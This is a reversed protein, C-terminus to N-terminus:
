RGTKRSFLGRERLVSFLFIVNGFLYRKWLRRPEQVLRFAWEFGLRQIWLSARKRNGSLFDFLGGVAWFTGANVKDVNNMIWKEQRPTGMGVLVINPKALNIEKVIENNNTFFGGHYGAIILMPFKKKINETAKRVVNDENGLLFLSWKKTEAVSFIEDIFDPASTREPLPRGLIKSAVIPGIGDAYVLTARQLIKKYVSDKNAISLCHANVYFITKKDRVTRTRSKGGKEILSVIASSIEKLRLAAIPVGLVIKKPIIGSSM